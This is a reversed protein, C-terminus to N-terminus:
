GNDSQAHFRNTLRNGRLKYNSTLEEETDSYFGFYKKWRIVAFTANLANLDAIQANPSYLDEGDGNAPAGSVNHHQRHGPISLTTRINGFLGKASKQIGLGVDVFPTGDAELKRAISGRAQNTDVCVFVFDLGGLLGLNTDDLHVAHPHIGKRMPRYLNAFYDVKKPKAKLTELSAAGPARFANHQLMEDDDFLHIDSVPTKAVLDLVYSGTGGLGVIGVKQGALRKTFESIGARSSATETYEFPTSIDASRIVAHTKATASSDLVRAPGSIYRCYTTMKHHHDRYGEPPKRSFSRQVQWDGVKQSTEGLGMTLPNGDSDFPHSGTFMVVHDSPKVTTEGALSLETILAARQIMGTHDVYPVDDLVLYGDSVSISYGEM